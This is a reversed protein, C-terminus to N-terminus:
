ELTFFGYPAGTQLSCQINCITCAYAYGPPPPGPTGTVGGKTLRKTLLCGVINLHCDPSYGRYSGTHGGRQFIRAVGKPVPLQNHYNQFMIKKVKILCKLPKNVQVCSLSGETNTLSFSGQRCVITGVGPCTCHPDPASLDDSIPLHCKEFERSLWVM